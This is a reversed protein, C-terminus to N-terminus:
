GSEFRKGVCYTFPSRRIGTLGLEFYRLAAELSSHGFLEAWALLPMPGTHGYALLPMSRPGRQGDPVVPVRLFEM